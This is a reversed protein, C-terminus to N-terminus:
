KAELAALRKRLSQIEAVLDAIVESTSAQMTQYVPKGDADVADKEGSVSNPYVEQFKHALFGRTRSGDSKWEYDIPQLADIREGSDSVAGIVEKLRYDSTTNYLVAASLYSISGIEGGGNRFKVAGFSSTGTAVLNMICQTSSGTTVNFKEGYASNSATGVLFNGSIFNAIIDNGQRNLYLPASYTQIEGYSANSDLVLNKSSAASGIITVRGLASTTGVLLNGSADLTMPTTFSIIGNAAGSGASQWYHAGGAQSYTASAGAKYYRWNTGDFYANMGAYFAPTAGQGAIFTGATGIQIAPSITSWASPTVGLGLNGSDNLIMLNLTDAANNFRYGNAANGIFYATSQITIAGRTTLGNTNTLGNVDLKSAPSSTGIGLGTSTLRMQESGNNSFITPYNGNHFINLAYATGSLGGTSNDLGLYVSNGANTAQFLAYNTNTSPAVQMRGASASAVLTTGDFTLATGTALTGSASAYVVGNATFPTAGSFGYLSPTTIVPSTLTLGAVTSATGGLSVSTSGITISSNTLASNAIGSLTGGLTLSGTSTVTGTLTLGNVTGAGSVSTVTGTTSSTGAGIATRFTAADLASVTNDANVRLFTIASPNTLTFLNSGATTAGLSTRAGGASTAGTGGNGVGLTGALIITGSSTIPGGSTTLGTTGGSVNVSTVTGAVSDLVWSAVGDKRLIGTGTLAAIADLDADWAQVNTGIAVGLNSRANGTNTLDSLNNAKQAMGALAAATTRLQVTTGSAWPLASTGDQGRVCTFIDGSRGTVKVIEYNSGDTLTLYAVDGGSIAPFTSGTGTAVTFSVDTYLIASALTTSSNNTFVISM